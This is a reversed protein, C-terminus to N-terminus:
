KVSPTTNHLFAGAKKMKRLVVFGCLYHASATIVWTVPYSIYLVEPTPVLAFVTYIWVVRFACSGLLSVVTPTISYGLGRMVGGGVEMVGCMFYTLGMIRLVTMGAEVVAPNDPAFIGLLPRGFIFVAAGMVFGIAAVVTVCWFASKKLREYNRAGANQGVFTLTTHYLANQTNYIYGELNNAATRGAVVAKGFSNVSSQILVNSISFLSSQIGAPLGLLLIRKAKKRDMHLERRNLRCPGEVRCMYMVVLVCAVWQSVATAAGVGMAGMDFILVAVLNFLVNAIGGTTLFLMPRVSDGTSRLMAACYNYVMCAPIGCFYARMYKTAESLVAPDTKMWRLMPNSFLLGIVMCGVGCISALMVSTHVVKSVSKYDKAGIDHAVSVGAGISLGMFLNVILHILSGCSGVAALAVECAEPTDGGWRGVVVIDATNFALQLVSTAILPLCFRIIQSLIPGTTFDKIEATKKVREM